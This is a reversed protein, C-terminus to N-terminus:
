SLSLFIHSVLDGFENLGMRFSLNEESNHKNILLVNSQWIQFRNQEEEISDYTKNYTIKFLEWESSTAPILQSNSHLFFCSFIIALIQIM